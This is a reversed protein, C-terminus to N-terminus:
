ALPTNRCSESGAMAAGLVLAVGLALALGAHTGASGSALVVAAFDQGSAAIQEALRAFHPSALKLRHLAEADHPFEEHLEHPTHASM